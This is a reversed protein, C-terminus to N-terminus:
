NMARAIFNGLALNFEEPCELMPFHAAGEVLVLEAGPIGAALQRSESPPTIQDEVGCVVLTPVQIEGLRARSDARNLSEIAEIAVHEPTQVVEQKGFDILEAPARSGFSREIVLQSAQAVGLERIGALVNEAKVDAGLGHPTAGVLVLAKLRQPNRLAFQQAVTGGMSLGVLIAQDIDLAEFVQEIDQVFADISYSRGQPAPSVGHGPLNILVVRREASFVDVQNRWFESTTTFGHCFVIAPGAGAVQVRMDGITKWEKNM